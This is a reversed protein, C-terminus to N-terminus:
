NLPTAKTSYQHCKCLSIVFICFVSCKYEHITM